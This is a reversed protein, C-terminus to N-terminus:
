YINISYVLSSLFSFFSLGILPALYVFLLLYIPILVNSKFPSQFFPSDKGFGSNQALSYYSNVKIVPVIGFKWSSQLHPLSSPLLFFFQASSLHYWLYSFWVSVWQWLQPVLFLLRPSITNILSMQLYCLSTSPSSLNFTLSSSLFYDFIIKLDQSQSFSFTNISFM